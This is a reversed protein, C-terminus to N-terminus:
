KWPQSGDLNDRHLRATDAAPWSHTTFAVIGAPGDACAITPKIWRRISANRRSGAFPRPPPSPPQGSSTRRSWSRPGLGHKAADRVRGWMEEFTAEADSGLDLWAIEDQWASFLWARVVDLWAGLSPRSLRSRQQIQQHRQPIPQGGLQVPINRHPVQGRQRPPQHLDAPLNLSNISNSPAVPDPASGADRVRGPRNVHRGTRNGGMTPTM